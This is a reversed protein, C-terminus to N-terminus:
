NKVFTKTNLSRERTDTEDCMCQQYNRNIGCHPCLGKCDEKCLFKVPEGLLISERVDDDLVIHRTESTIERIEDEDEVSPKVGYRGILYWHSFSTQFQGDFEDLCRDCPRHFAAIVGCQVFIGAESKKLVVHVAITVLNEDNSITAAPSVLEYVHDGDSVHLIPVVFTGTRM